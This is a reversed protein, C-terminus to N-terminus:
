KVSDLPPISAVAGQKEQSYKRHVARLTCACGFHKVHLEHLERVCPRLDEESYWSQLEPGWACQKAGLTGLALYLASAAVTSAPFKLFSYEQLTLEVLYTALLATKTSPTSTYYTSGLKLMRKLFVFASPATLHFGLTQLMKAEMQLIQERTYARDSIYVFDRCEPAYIEEYKSALFM